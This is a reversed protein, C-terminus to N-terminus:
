GAFFALVVWGTSYSIFPSCFATHAASKRQNYVLRLWLAVGALGSAGPLTAGLHPKGLTWAAHVIRGSPRHPM